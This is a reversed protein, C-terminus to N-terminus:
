SWIREMNHNRTKAMFGQELIARKRLVLLLVVRLQGSLLFCWVGLELLRAASVFFLWLLHAGSGTAFPTTGKGSVLLEGM